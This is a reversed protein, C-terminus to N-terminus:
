QKPPVVPISSMSVPAGSRPKMEGLVDLSADEDQVAGFVRNRRHLLEIGHDRLEAGCFHVELDVEVAAGRMRKRLRLVGRLHVGIIFVLHRHRAKELIEQRVSRRTGTPTQPSPKLKFTKTGALLSRAGVGGWLSFDLGRRKSPIQRNWVVRRSPQMPWM